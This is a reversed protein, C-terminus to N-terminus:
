WADRASCAVRCRRRRPNSPPIATTSQHQRRLALRKAPVRRSGSAFRRRRMSALAADLCCGLPSSPRPVLVLPEYYRNGLEDVGVPQGRRLLSRDAAADEWTRAVHIAAEDLTAHAGEEAAPRTDLGDGASQRVPNAPVRGLRQSAQAAEYAANFHERFADSGSAVDALSTALALRQAPELADWCDADAELAASLAETAAASFASGAPAGDGDDDMDTRGFLDAVHAPWAVRGLATELASATIGEQHATTLSVGAALSATREGKIVRALGCCFDSFLTAAAARAGALPSPALPRCDWFAAAARDLSFPPLQLLSAFTNGMDWLMLVEWVAARPVLDLEPLQPFPAVRPPLPAAAKPQPRSIRAAGGRSSAKRATAGTAAVPGRAVPAPLNARLGALQVRADLKVVFDPEPPAAAAVFGPPPQEQLAFTAAALARM